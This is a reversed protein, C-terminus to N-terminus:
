QRAQQIKPQALRSESQGQVRREQNWDTQRHRILHLEM